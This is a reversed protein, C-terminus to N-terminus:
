KVKIYNQKQCLKIKLYKQYIEPLNPYKEMLNVFQHCKWCIWIGKVLKGKQLDNDDWHHYGMKKEKIVGCLECKNDKPYPRKKLGYFHIKKGKIFTGLRTRRSYDLEKGSEQRKRDSKRNTEKVKEPNRKKWEKQYKKFKEPNKEKWTKNARRVCEYKRYRTIMEKDSKIAHLTRDAGAEANDQLGEM